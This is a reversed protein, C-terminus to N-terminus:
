KNKLRGALWIAPGSCCYCITLAWITVQINFAAALLIALWVPRPCRLLTILKPYPFTSVMLTALLGALGVVIGVSPVPAVLYLAAIIAGGGTTPIGQFYGNHKPSANFRALRLAGALAYVGCIVLVMWLPTVPRAWSYILGVGAIIFSTMDALSDLQAGFESTVQWHRALTGDCSDLLVCLLLGWAAMANYGASAAILALVGIILNVSTFSNVILFRLRLISLSPTASM